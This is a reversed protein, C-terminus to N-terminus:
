CDADDPFGQWWDMALNFILISKLKTDFKIEQRFGSLIYICVCQM